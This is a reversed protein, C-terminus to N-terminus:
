GIRQLKEQVIGVVVDEHLAKVREMLIEPYEYQQDLTYSRLRLSQNRGEQISFDMKAPLYFRSMGYTNTEHLLPEYICLEVPFFSQISTRGAIIKYRVKDGLKESCFAGRHWRM